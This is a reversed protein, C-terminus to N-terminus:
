LAEEILMTEFHWPNRADSRVRKIAVPRHFGYAGQAIGLFVEATGGRGIPPGIEYRASRAADLAPPLSELIAVAPDLVSPMRDALVAGGAVLRVGLDATM